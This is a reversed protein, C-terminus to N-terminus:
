LYEGFYCKQIKNFECQTLEFEEFTNISIWKKIFHKENECVVKILTYKKDPIQMKNRNWTEIGIPPTNTKNWINWVENKLYETVRKILEQKMTSKNKM